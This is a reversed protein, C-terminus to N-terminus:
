RSGEPDAIIVQTVRGASDTGAVMEFARRVRATVPALPEMKAASINRARCASWRTARM